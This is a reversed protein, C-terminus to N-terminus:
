GGLKTESKDCSDLAIAVGLEQVHESSEAGAEIARGLVLDLLNELHANVGRADDIGLGALRVRVNAVHGFITHTLHRKVVGILEALNGTQEGVGFKEQPDERVIGRREAAQAELKPGREVRRVTEQGQGALEAQINHTDAEM